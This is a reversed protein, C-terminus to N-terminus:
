DLVTCVDGTKNVCVFERSMSAMVQLFSSLRTRKVTVGSMFGKEAKRKGM